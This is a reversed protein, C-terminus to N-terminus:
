RFLAFPSVGAQRVLTVEIAALHGAVELWVEYGSTPGLNSIDVEVANAGRQLTVHARVGHHAQHVVLEGAEAVEVDIRYRGSPLFMPETSTRDGSARTGRALDITMSSAGVTPAFPSRRNDLLVTRALRARAEPRDWVWIDFTPKGDPRFTAPTPCTVIRDPPGVDDRYFQLLADSMAHTVLFDVQAGGRYPGAFWDVNDDKIDLAPPVDDLVQVVAGSSGWGLRAANLFRATWWTAIGDHLHVTTEAERFCRLMDSTISRPDEISLPGGCTAALAIAPAAFWIRFRVRPLFRAIAFAYFALSLVWALVCYRFAYSGDFAGRKIPIAISAIAALPFFALCFRETTTSRRRLAIALSASAIMALLAIAAALRGGPAAWLADLFLALSRRWPLYADGRIPWAYRAILALALLGVIAAVGITAGFAVLRRRTPGITTAAIMAPVCFTAIFYPSSLVSIAVLLAYIPLAARPAVVEPRFWRHLLALMAITSILESSHNVIFLHYVFDTPTLTYFAAAIAGAVLAGNGLARALAYLAAVCLLAYAAGLAYSFAELDPALLAIPLQLVMDLFYPSPTLTFGRLSDGHHLWGLLINYHVLSDHMVASGARLALYRADFSRLALAVALVLASM